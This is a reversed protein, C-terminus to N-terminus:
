EQFRAQIRELANGVIVLYKANLIDYVNLGSADITKVTAINRLSKQLATESSDLVVLTNLGTDVGLKSLVEIAKKTKIDRLGFDDILFLMGENKRTTLAASLAAAREKKNLSFDYKRPRPGHAIGGGVWISSTNSGARARGTGKQKWPKRGGGRVEARTKTSHTGARRKALQWRVIQHFMGKELREARKAASFVGALVSKTGVKKGSANLVDLEIQASM